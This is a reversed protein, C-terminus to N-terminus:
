DFLDDLAESSVTDMDRYDLEGSGTAYHDALSDLLLTLDRATIQDAPNRGKFQIRPLGDTMALRDFITKVDSITVEVNLERESDYYFDALQDFIEKLAQKTMPRDEM